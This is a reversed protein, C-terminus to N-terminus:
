RSHYRHGLRELDPRLSAHNFIEGNYIVWLSEDENAMPQGGGSLDIISLRRHGLSAHDDEYYGSGDPGRHVIADNMRRLVSPPYPRARATIYGAIGCM